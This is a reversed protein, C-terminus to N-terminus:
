TAILGHVRQHLSRRPPQARPRRRLTRRSRVTSATAKAHDPASPDRRRQDAGFRREDARRESLDQNYDDAGVSDAHGYVDVTTQDYERLMSGVDRLTPM